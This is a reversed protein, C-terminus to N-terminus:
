IWLHALFLYENGSKGGKLSLKSHYAHPGHVFNGQPSTTRLSHASGKQLIHPCRTYPATPAIRREDATNLSFQIDRLKRIQSFLVEVVRYYVPPIHLVVAKVKITEM